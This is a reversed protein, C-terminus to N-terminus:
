LFPVFLFDKMHVNGLSARRFFELKLTIAVALIRSKIRQDFEAPRYPGADREGSVNAEQQDRSAHDEGARLGAVVM